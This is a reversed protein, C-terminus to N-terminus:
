FKSAVPAAGQSQYKGAGYGAKPSAGLAVFLFQCIGEEPYIFVPALGTNSIELTVHGEWGPELPTVNIIIGCRAWTSKGVCLALIGEPMSFREVTTGLVVSGARLELRGNFYPVRELEPPAKPDIVGGEYAYRCVNPALRADYGASSLGYSAIPLGETDRRVKSPEFPAIMNASRALREIEHDPLLGKLARPPWPGGAQATPAARNMAKPVM